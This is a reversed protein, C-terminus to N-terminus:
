PWCHSKQNKGSQVTPSVCEAILADRGYVDPYFHVNDDAGVWATLYLLYIPLTKRLKVERTQGSELAAQIRSADWDSNYTLLFEALQRPNELRICGSSFTRQKQEFLRRAPTDHLYVDFDNSFLFKLRGLPNFPGPDQRLVYPFNEKNYLTWDIHRPNVERQQSLNAFVRIKKTQLYGPNRQQLPILDEIAITTPVTWFPNFVVTHMVGGIEPTQRDQKGIVVWMSFRAKGQDFATLDYGASNVILFREGLNRPLWRWREMNVKIQRIRDAISVNMASRTAEGVVGDMKLGHRVQFRDVAFKVAPDFLRADEAPTDQMDGEAIL